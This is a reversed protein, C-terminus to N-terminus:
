VRKFKQTLLKRARQLRVEKEKRTKVLENILRDRDCRICEMKGYGDEVMPFNCHICKPNMAEYLWVAFWTFLFVIAFIIAYATM